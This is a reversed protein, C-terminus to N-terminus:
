ALLPVRFSSIFFRLSATILSTLIGLLIFGKGGDHFYQYRTGDFRGLGEVENKVAHSHVLDSTRFAWEMLKM